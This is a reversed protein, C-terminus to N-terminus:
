AAAMARGEAVDAMADFGQTHSTLSGTIVSHRHQGRGSKRDDRADQATDKAIRTNTVALTSCDTVDRFAVLRREKLTRSTM